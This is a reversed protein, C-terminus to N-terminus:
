VCVKEINRTGHLLAPVCEIMPTQVHCLGGALHEDIGQNVPANAHDEPKRSVAYVAHDLRQAFLLFLNTKDLHSVLLSGGEHRACIRFPGPLEPNANRSRAGAPNMQQVPEVVGLEITLWHKRDRTQLEVVEQMGVGLLIDLEVLQEHVDANVVGTYHPRRMNLIDGLQCAAGGKSIPTDGVDGNWDVDLVLLHALVQTRLAIHRLMNGLEHALSSMKRGFDLQSM